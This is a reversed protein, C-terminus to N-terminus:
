VLRVQIAWLWDAHSVVKREWDHTDMGESVVAFSSNIEAQQKLIGEELEPCQLERIQM